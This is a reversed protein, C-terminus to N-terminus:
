YRYSLQFGVQNSTYSFGAENSNNQSYTYFASATGHRLFPTNLSAGISALKDRRGDYPSVVAAGATSHYDTAVYQANIGLSLRKLLAQMLTLNFGTTQTVLNEYYASSVTRSSNFAISTDRFPRYNLTVSSIPSVLQPQSSALFQRIEVGGNATLDVKHAVKWLVRAQAQEYVMDAGLQVPNYGAGLVAGASLSPAWRYDIGGYGSWDLSNGVSGVLNQVYLLNQKAGFNLTAADNLQYSSDLTTIYDQEDTQQATQVQPDSTLACTQGFKWTWDEYATEGNLNITQDLTNRFTPDSYFSLTPLYSLNWHTGFSAGIGPSVQNLFTNQAQGPASQIGTGYALHYSLNPHFVVSGWQLPQPPPRAALPPPAGEPSPQGPTPTPNEPAPPIIETEPISPLSSIVQQGRASTVSFALLLLIRSLLRLGVEARQLQWSKSIWLIM